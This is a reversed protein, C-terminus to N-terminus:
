ALLSRSRSSVYTPPRMEPTYGLTPGAQVQAWGQSRGQFLAAAAWSYGLPGDSSFNDVINPIYANYELINWIGAYKEFIQSIRAFEM